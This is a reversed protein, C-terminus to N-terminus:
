EAKGHAKKIPHSRASSRTNGYVMTHLHQSIQQYWLPISAPTTYLTDMITKANSSIMQKLTIKKNKAVHTNYLSVMFALCLIEVLLLVCQFIMLVIADSNISLVGSFGACPGYSAPCSTVLGAFQCCYLPDSAYSYQGASTNAMLMDIVLIVIIAISDISALVIVGVFLGLLDPYTVHMIALFIGFLPVFIKVISIMMFFALFPWKSISIDFLTFPWALYVMLTLAYIILMLETLFPWPSRKLKTTLPQKKATSSKEKDMPIQEEGGKEM